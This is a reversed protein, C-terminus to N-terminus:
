CFGTAWLTSVGFAGKAKDVPKKFAGAHILAPRTKLRGGCPYLDDAVAARDADIDARPAAADIGKIGSFERTIYNESAM